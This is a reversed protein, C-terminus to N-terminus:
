LQSLQDDIYDLQRGLQRELDDHAEERLQAPSSLSGKTNKLKKNPPTNGSYWYHTEESSVDSYYSEEYSYVGSVMLRAKLGFSNRTTRSHATYNYYQYEPIPIYTGNEAPVKNVGVKVKDQRSEQQESGREIRYPRYPHVRIDIILDAESPSYTYYIFDGSINNKIVNEFLRNRIYVYVRGLREYKTALASANKYNGYARYTDAALQYNTAVRRYDAKSSSSNVLSQARSFYKEAEQGYYKKEYQAALTQSDKYKGIPRYIDAAQKFKEAAAKYDQYGVSKKAENYYKEAELTRYKKDYQVALAQSDKYKGLPQYVDAAQRFQEAATKYDQNSVAIKGAAYFEQAATQYYQNMAAQYRKGIDQYDPDYKMGAHYFEAQKKYSASDATPYHSAKEYYLQALNKKLSTENYKHSFDTLSPGYPKDVLSTQITLLLQYEKIKSDYDTPQANQIGNEAMRMLTNVKQILYNKQGSNLPLPKDAYSKALIAIGKYYESQKFAQEVQIRQIVACSTLLLSLLGILLLRM